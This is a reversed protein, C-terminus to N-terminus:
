LAIMLTALGWVILVGGMVRGIWHGAPATKEILVVAAIGTIWALNMVGGVFLLLMLMWCCGLCYVGHRLGMQFAGWRGERWHTLVFDIPSRCHRLCAQKLPAWQYIGAGILVAAALIVNTVQMAPSFLSALDLSWQLGTAAISFGIWVAIYGLTFLWTGAMGASHERRRALSAYFLLMPAASPLMMAMMMVAWMALMLAAYPLSWPMGSMPMADMSQMEMGAGHLLYLWSAAVTVILGGALIARDRQVLKKISLTTV